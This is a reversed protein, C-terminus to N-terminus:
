KKKPVLTIVVLGGQPSDTPNFVPNTQHIRTDAGQVGAAILANKVAALRQRGIDLAAARTRRDAQRDANPRLMDYLQDMANETQAIQRDIAQLSQLTAEASAEPRSGLQGRATGALIARRELLQAKEARLQQAIARSEEPTPNARVTARSIDGETLEHRVQLELEGEKKMRNALASLAGLAGEDLGAYGPAFRLAVTEEVIKKKDGGLGLMEGAGKVVNLTVNVPAMGLIKGVQGLAPLVVSEYSLNGNKIPVPINLKITDDVSKVGKIALDIPAQIKLASQIPGGPPESLSLNTFVISNQTEIDGTPQFKIDTVEDFIGDGITVKEQEALGRVGLLEFGNVTTKAWGDLVFSNGLPKIAVAGNAAVQSFLDRMESAPATTPQDSALKLLGGSTDSKRPPMPVKGSTVLVNFRVPKGTWPMQSSVDRVDVDLGDLPVLTNPNTTVDRVVFDIGTVTLHDLRIESKPRQPPATPATTPGAEKTPPAAAVERNKEEGAPQTTAKKLPIVFGAAHIGRDDRLVQGIPKTIDVSKFLVNGAAPEIKIGDSRIEELGALIPGEPEARFEVPKVDFDLAFGRAVDWDRPGRRKYNITADLHSHFTGRTLESGDIKDKLEPLLDTVGKGNIDTATVEIAVTPTVSYPLAQLGVAFNGVVPAIQGTLDIAVQPNSEPDKGGAEIKARNRVHLNQLSVPAGDTLGTVTVRTVGLDVKNVTVLPVARRAEAVLAKVDVTPQSSPATSALQPQTAPAAVPKEVAPQTVASGKGGLRIGGAEIAGDPALAIDTELGSSSLEQVTIAGGQPDVRIADLKFAGLKLLPRGDEFNIDNVALHGALGGEPSNSLGADLTGSFRGSKLTTALGEPLYAALDGARIGDADIKLKAGPADTSANFTGAVTAHDIVGDVRATVNLNAWSPDPTGIHLNELDVSSTLTTNVPKPAANDTWAASADKVHLSKLSLVIPSPPLKWSAPTTTPPTSQTSAVLTAPQTTASTEALQTAAVLRIGGLQLSGDANRAARGRPRDIHVDGIDVGKPSLTLQDLHFADIGALETDGDKYNLNQVDLALTTANEAEKVNAKATLSLRGDTLKPEIGISKLYTSLAEATIGSGTVAVEIGLGDKGPTVTGEAALKDAVKPISIWARFKGPKGEQKSKPDIVVDSAEVGADGVSVAQEQGAMQDLFQIKVDKWAVKDIEIRPLELDKALAAIADMVPRTTSNANTGKPRDIAVQTPETIGAHFGLAAMNGSKQRTMPLAPGSLEVSAVRIAGTKGDVSVGHVNATGMGFLEKGEDTFKIDKITADAALGGDPTAAVDASLQGEFKGDKLEPEIWVMALYPKVADGKIGGAEVKMDVHRTKAFPVISGAFTANTILGPISATGAITAKEDPHTRDMVVNKVTLSDLRAELNKGGKIAQDDFMARMDKLSVEDVAVRFDPLEQSTPEKKNSPPMPALEMGAIRVGGDSTRRASARGGELAVEVMEVTSLNIRRAKLKLKNLAAWQQLDASAHVDEVNLEASIDPSNPVVSANFSAKATVTLQDAVPKLGMQALYVAAPKPHVGRLLVNVVGDISTPTNHAEGWVRFSDMVPDASVDLEFRTPAGASGVDSVRVNTRISAEFVPSVSKDRVTANVHMLRLADVRLPAELNVPKPNGTAPTPTTTAKGRESGALAKLLPLSGDAERELLADVGDVEARYVVLKGRFLNLPSISGQLYDTRLVAEGGGKPRLAFGWISANAGLASLNMRDYDCELGYAGAVKSLVTPLLLNVAVRFCLVLILAVLVILKLRQWWTRRPRPKKEKPAAAPPKPVGANTKSSELGPNNGPGPEDGAPPQPTTESM